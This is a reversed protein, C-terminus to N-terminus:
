GKVDAIEEDDVDEVGGDDLEWSPTISPNGEVYCEALEVARDLYSDGDKVEVVVSIHASFDVRVKKM